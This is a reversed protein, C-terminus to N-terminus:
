AMKLKEMQMEFFNVYWWLMWVWKKSCWLTLYVYYPYLGDLSRPRYLKRHMGVSNGFTLIM